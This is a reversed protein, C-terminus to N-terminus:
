FVLFLDEDWCLPTYNDDFLGLVFDKTLWFKEGSALDFHDSEFILLGEKEPHEKLNFVTGPTIDLFKKQLIATM